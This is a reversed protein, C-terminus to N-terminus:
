KLKAKEARIFDRMGDKHSAEVVLAMPNANAFVLFGGDRAFRVCEQFLAREPEQFKDYLVGNVATVRNREGEWLLIQDTINDPVLRHRQKCLPHANETLFHIIQEATIGMKFASRISARSIVAVLMNPLIVEPEAFLKIMEVHLRSETYCYCKFNTECIIFVNAGGQISASAAAPKAGPETKVKKDGQPQQQPQQQQELPADDGDYTRAAAAMKEERSQGFVINVGLSSPYFIRMSLAPDRYILGFLEFDDLLSQQTADLAATSCALGPPCYSLKFLMQLVSEPSKVQATYHRIFLWLQKHLDRLMFHYGQKTIQPRALNAVERMLGMSVLLQSVRKGPSRHEQSGVIFHLIATWRETAAAEITALEVVPARAVLADQWPLKLPDEDVLASALQVRFERALEVQLSGPWLTGGRLERRGGEAVLLHMEVLEDRAEKLSARAAPDAAASAEWTSWAVPQDVAALRMALQRSLGSLRQLVGLCSWRCEKYLRACAAGDLRALFSFLDDEEEGPTGGGQAAAQNGVGAGGAASPLLRPDGLSSSM